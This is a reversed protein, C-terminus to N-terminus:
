NGKIRNNTYDKGKADIILIVRIRVGHDKM